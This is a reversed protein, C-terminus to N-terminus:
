KNIHKEAIKNKYKSLIGYIKIVKAYIILFSKLNM